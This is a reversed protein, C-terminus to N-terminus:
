EVKDLRIELALQTGPQLGGLRDRIAAAVEERVVVRRRGAARMGTVATEIGAGVGADGLQFELNWNSDIGPWITNYAQDTYLTYCIAVRKGKEAVAGSGAVVEACHNVYGTDGIPQQHWQLETAASDDADILLNGRRLVKADPLSFSVSIGGNSEYIRVVPGDIPVRCEYVTYGGEVEETFHFVCSDRQRGLINVEVSGLGWGFRAQGRMCTAPQFTLSSGQVRIPTGASAQVPSHPSDCGVGIALLACVLYPMSPGTCGNFRSAPSGVADRTRSEEGAGM